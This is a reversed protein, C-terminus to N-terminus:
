NSTAAAEFLAFAEDHNAPVTLNHTTLNYIAVVVNEQDLIVLDRMTIGWTDWVLNAADEQLWGIDRGQCVSTNGSEYGVENIGFITVDLGAATLEDQM